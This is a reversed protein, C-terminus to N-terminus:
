MIKHKVKVEQKVNHNFAVIFLNYKILKSMIFSQYCQIYIGSSLNYKRSFFSSINAIHILYSWHENLGDISFFKTKDNSITICM